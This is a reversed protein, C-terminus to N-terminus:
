QPKYPRMPVGTPQYVKRKQQYLKLQDLLEDTQDKTTVQTQTLENNRNYIRKVRGESTNMGGQSGSVSGQNFVAKPGQYELPQLEGSNPDVGYRYDFLSEYTKARTNELDNQLIKSSISNLAEQTQAKTKSRATSQRIMQTDALQLNKLQADNLLAVNKNAVENAIGQNTRFEEAKVANDAEYKQGGLVALASPNYNLEHALSSFSNQNQNLRDQFSVQYPQYLNPEYKQMPVPEVTNHALGFLEPAYQELKLKNYATSSRPTPVNPNADPLTYDPTDVQQYQRDFQDKSAKIKSADFPRGIPNAVDPFDINGKPTDVPHSNVGYTTGEGKAMINRTLNDLQSSSLDSIKKGVMDDPLTYDYPKKGTWQSIADKISLNNYLPRKLQTQMAQFGTERDPFVAFKSNPDKKAGMKIMWSNPVFEINGPNNNRDSITPKGDGPGSYGAAAKKVKAGYNAKSYKGESLDQPDVGLRDATDLITNQIHAMAEKADTARKMRMDAGIANARGSNFGMYEYQHEPDNEGMLKDALKMKKNAFNEEKAIKKSFDKFKMNTGPFKMNGMVNFDGNQDVFGTEQGEVEVGKGAYSIGIGGKEHSPGKFELTPGSYPNNSILEAGGGYHFQLPNGENKLLMSGGVDMKAVDTNGLQQQNTVNPSSRNFDLIGYGINRTKKRYAEVVPNNHPTDYFRRIREEPSLQKIDNRQNFLTVADLLQHTEANNNNIAFSRGEKTSFPNQGSGIGANLLDIMNYDKAHPDPLKDTLTSNPLAPVPSPAAVKTKKPDEEGVGDGSPILDGYAAEQGAAWGFFRKQKDTLKHGHATGDKLIEKAKASSIPGGTKYEGTYLLKNDIDDVYPKTKGKGGLGDAIVRGGEAAKKRRPPIARTRAAMTSATWPMMGGQDFVLKDDYEDSALGGGNLFKDNEFMPLSNYDLKDYPADSRRQQPSIKDGNYAMDGDMDTDAGRYDQGRMDVDGSRKRKKMKGGKKLVLKDNAEDAILGGTELVVKDAAADAFFGFRRPDERYGGVQGGNDLVVVNAREDRILGGEEFNLAQSGTGYPNPNYTRQPEVVQQKRIRGYPILNDIATLGGLAVEGWNTPNHYRYDFNSGYSPAVERGQSPDANRDVNLDALGPLNAKHPVQENQGIDKLRPDVPIEDGFDAHHWKSANQAFIARKRTLPNKSHTLEETSKGTRKKLANFKGKNAPNIHIGSKAQHLFGFVDDLTPHVNTKAM